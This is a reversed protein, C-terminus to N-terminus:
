DAHGKPPHKRKRALKREPRNCEKQWRAIEREVSQPDVGRYTGLKICEERYERHIKALADEM